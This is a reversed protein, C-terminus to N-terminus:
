IKTRMNLIAGLRPEQLARDLPNGARSYMLIKMPGSSSGSVISVSRADGRQRDHDIV